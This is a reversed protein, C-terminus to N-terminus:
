EIERYNVSCIAGRVKEEGQTQGNGNWEDGIAGAADKRWDTTSLDLCVVLDRQLGTANDIPNPM